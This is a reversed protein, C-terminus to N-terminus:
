QNPFGLRSDGEARTPIFRFLSIPEVVVEAQQAVCFEDLEIAAAATVPLNLPDGPLTMFKEVSDAITFNPPTGLISCLLDSARTNREHQVHRFGVPLM